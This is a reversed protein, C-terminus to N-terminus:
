FDLLTSNIKTERYKCYVCEESSEPMPGDLLLLADKWLTEAKSVDVDVKVLNTHFLFINEVVKDPYYFLLYSYDETDYRNKRLLFNYIDLQHRYHEHTDEKLEYGRTKYDLVILKSGKKLINDIAGRLINGKEDKFSIGQKYNRWKELLDLDDFLKANIKHKKFEPPLEDKGM